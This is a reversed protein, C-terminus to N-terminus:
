LPTSFVLSQSKKINRQGALAREQGDGAMKCAAVQLDWAPGPRVCFFISMDQFFASLAEYPVRIPEAEPKADAKDRLLSVTETAGSKTHPWMRLM